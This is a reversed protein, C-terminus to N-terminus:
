YELKRHDVDNIKGNSDREQRNTYATRIKMDKLLQERLKKCRDDISEQTITHDDDMDDELKDRLESVQLEIDRLNNRKNPVLRQPKKINKSHKKERAESQRLLYGKRKINDREKASALSRQIHGSTSSGKASPLGIGNYSM